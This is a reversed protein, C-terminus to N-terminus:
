AIQSIQFKLYKHYLEILFNTHVSKLIIPNKNQIIMYKGKNKLDTIVEEFLPGLDSFFTGRHYDCIFQEISKDNKWVQFSTMVFNSFESNITFTGDRLETEKVEYSKNEMDKEIYYHSIETPPLWRNTIKSFKLSSEDRSRKIDESWMENAIFLYEKKLEKDYYMYRPQQSIDDILDDSLGQEKNDKASKLSIDIDKMLRETHIYARRHRQITKVAHIKRLAMM